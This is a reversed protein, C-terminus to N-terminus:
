SPFCLFFDDHIMLLRPSLTLLSLGLLCRADIKSTLEGLATLQQVAFKFYVFSVLSYTHLQVQDSRIISPPISFFYGAKVGEMAVSPKGDFAHLLVKDAGLPLLPYSCNLGGFQKAFNYVSHSAWRAREALHNYTAWCLTLPCKQFICCCFVFVIESLKILFSGPANIDCSTFVTHIIIVWLPLNLEKALQAQQTLVQRQNEKDVDSKIYKPTFDLGVQFFVYAFHIENSLNDSCILAPHCFHKACQLTVEGIAM